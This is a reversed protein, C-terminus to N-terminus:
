DRPQVSVFSLRPKKNVPIFNGSGLLVGSGKIIKDGYDFNDLPQIRTTTFVSLQKQENERRSKRKYYYVEGVLVVM